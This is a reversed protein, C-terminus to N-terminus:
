HAIKKWYKGYDFHRGAGGCEAPMEGNHCTVCNARAFEVMGGDRNHGTGYGHCAECQVHEMSRRDSSAQGFGGPLKWGTVHCAVCDPDNERFQDILSDFARSHATEYYTDVAEQHCVSCSEVGMYGFHVEQESAEKVAVVYFLSWLLISVIM